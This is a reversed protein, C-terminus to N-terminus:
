SKRYDIRFAKSSNAFPMWNSQVRDQSKRFRCSSCVCSRPIGTWELRCYPWTGFQLNNMTSPQLTLHLNRSQHIRLEHVKWNWYWRCKSEWLDAFSPWWKARFSATFSRMLAIKSSLYCSKFITLPEFLTFRQSFRSCSAESKFGRSAHLYQVLSLTIASFSWVKISSGYYLVALNNTVWSVILKTLAPDNTIIQLFSHSEPRCIM